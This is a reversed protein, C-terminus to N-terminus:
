IFEDPTWGAILRNKDNTNLGRIKITMYWITYLYWFNVPTNIIYGVKLWLHSTISSFYVNIIISTIIHFQYIYLLITNYKRKGYFGAIIFPLSILFEKYFFSYLLITMLDFTLNFMIVSSMHYINFKAKYSTIYYSGNEYQYFSSDEM